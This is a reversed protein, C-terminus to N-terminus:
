SLHVIWNIPVILCAVTEGKAWLWFGVVNEIKHSWVVRQGVLHALSCLLTIGYLAARAPYLPTGIINVGIVSENRTLWSKRILHIVHIAGGTEPYLFRLPPLIRPCGRSTGWNMTLPAPGIAAVGM